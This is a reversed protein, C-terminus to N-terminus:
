SIMYLNTIDDHSKFLQFSSEEKTRKKFRWPYAFMFPFYIAIILLPIDKPYSDVILCDFRLSM